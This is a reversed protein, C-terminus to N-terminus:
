DIKVDGVMDVDVVVVKEAVVATAVMGVLDVDVVEIYKAILDEKVIKPAM